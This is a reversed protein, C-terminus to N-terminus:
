ENDQWMHISVKGGEKVNQLAEQLEIVEACPIHSPVGPISITKIGVEPTAVYRGDYEPNNSALIPVNSEKEDWYSICFSLPAYKIGTIESQSAKRGCLARMGMTDDVNKQFKILTLYWNENKFAEKAEEETKGEIYPCDTNLDIHDSSATAFWKLVRLSDSKLESYTKNEVDKLKGLRINDWKFWYGNEENVPYTPANYDFNNHVVTGYQYWFPYADGSEIDNYRSYVAPKEPASLSGDGHYVIIATPVDISNTYTSHYGVIGVDDYKDHLSAVNDTNTGTDFYPIPHKMTYEVMAQSTHAMKPGSNYARSKRVHPATPYHYKLYHNRRKGGWTFMSAYLHSDDNGELLQGCKDVFDKATFEKPDKGTKIWHDGVATRSDNYLNCGGIFITGTNGYSETATGPMWTDIDKSDVYHSGGDCQECCQEDICQIEDCEVDKCEQQCTQCHYSQCCNNNYNAEINNVAEKITGYIDPTIIAEKSPVTISAPSIRPNPQSTCNEVKGHCEGKPYGGNMSESHQNNYIEELSAIRTKLDEIYSPTIIEEKSPM